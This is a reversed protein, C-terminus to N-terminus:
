GGAVAVDEVYYYSGRLRVLADYYARGDDPTLLRAGSVITRIYSKELATEPRVIVRDGVLEFTCVTRLPEYSEPDLEILRKV